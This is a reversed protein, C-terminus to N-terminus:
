RAPVITVFHERLLESLFRKFRRPGLKGAYARQLASYRVTKGQLLREILPAAALDFVYERDLTSVALGRARRELAAHVTGTWRVGADAAPRFRAYVSCPLAPPAHAALTARREELYRALTGATLRAGAAGAVRVFWARRSKADFLPIDRRASDVSRVDDVLWSLFDIGTLTALGLTLHLTPEGVAIADHWHGRPIYLLDGAALTLRAQTKLPQMENPRADRKLPRPRSPGYLLWRKRGALQLIFVDHADWHPGYGRHRGFAAYLNVNPEILFLRAFERTLEALPPHMENVGNLVLTAGRALERNLARVDLQSARQDKPAKADGGDRVLRLRPPELRQTALLHNLDSWGFLRAYKSAKGRVHLHSEGWSDALFSALPVPALLRRPTM